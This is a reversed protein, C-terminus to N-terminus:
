PCTLVAGQFPDIASQATQAEATWQQQMETVREQLQSQAEAADAGTVTIDTGQFRNQLETRWDRGIKRHEQEHAGIAELMRSWAAREAAINPRRSPSWSPMDRPCNVAVRSRNNGRARIQVSGDALTTRQTQLGGNFQYNCATQAWEPAYPSNSDLWDVVENCELSSPVRYCQLSPPSSTGALSQAIQEGALVAHATQNASQERSESRDERIAFDRQTMGPWQQVAHTLEHALLWQGQNTNPSFQGHGFVIDHGVTYALANVAKASEAAKADAHVRVKSFDHGFRPEFLARTQQDLRQGPLRLVEHVIPPVTAPEAGNTSLRQLRKGRCGECMGDLGAGSGCACKRQLLSAGIKNPAPTLAPKNKTALTAPM